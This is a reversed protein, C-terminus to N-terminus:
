KVVSIRVNAKGKRIMGLERAAQRSLDIFVDEHEDCRDNIKVIVSKKNRLNVVKVKTGLPLTPHAATLKKSNYIEGSATRKGNYHKAYYRAVGKAGNKTYYQSINHCGISIFVIVISLIFLSFIRKAKM